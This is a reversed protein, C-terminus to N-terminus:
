LNMLVHKANISVWEHALIKPLIISKKESYKKIGLAKAIGQLVRQGMNSGNAIVENKTINNKSIGGIFGAKRGVMFCQNSTGRVKGAPTKKSGCYISM